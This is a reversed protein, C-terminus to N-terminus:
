RLARENGENREFISTFIHCSGPGTGTQGRFSLPDFEFGGNRSLGLGSNHIRGREDQKAAADMVREGAFM